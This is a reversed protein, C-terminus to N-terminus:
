GHILAETYIEHKIPLYDFWRETRYNDLILQQTLFQYWYHKHETDSELLEIANKVNFCDAFKSTKLM